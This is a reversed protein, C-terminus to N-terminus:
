TGLSCQFHPAPLYENGVNFPNNFSQILSYRLLHIYPQRRGINPLKHSHWIYLAQLRNWRQLRQYNPLWFRHQRVPPRHRLLTTDRLMITLVRATSSRLDRISHRPASLRLWHIILIRRRKYNMHGENAVMKVDVDGRQPTEPV